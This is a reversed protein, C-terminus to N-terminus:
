SFRYRKFADQVDSMPESSRTGVKITYPHRINPAGSVSSGDM